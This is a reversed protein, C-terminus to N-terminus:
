QCTGIIVEGDGFDVYGKCKNSACQHDGACGSGSGHKATCSSSNEKGDCFGGSTCLGHNASGGRFCGCRRDSALFQSACEQASNAVSGDSLNRPRSCKGSACTGSLCQKADSCSQGEAKRERCYGIGACFKLPGCTENGTPNCAQGDFDKPLCKGNLCKLDNRCAEDLKENFPYDGFNISCSEGKAITNRCRNEKTCYQHAGCDAHRSCRAEKSNPKVPNVSHQNYCSCTGTTLMTCYCTQNASYPIATGVAKDRCARATPAVNPCKQAGGSSSGSGDDYNKGTGGDRLMEKFGGRPGCADHAWAQCSSYAGYAPCIDTTVHGDLCRAQCDYAGSCFAADGRNDQSQRVMWLSLPLVIFAILLMVGFFLKKFHRQRQSRSRLKSSSASKSSSKRLVPLRM